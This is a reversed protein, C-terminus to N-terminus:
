KWKESSVFQWVLFCIACLRLPFSVLQPAVSLITKFAAVPHSDCLTTVACWLLAKLLVLLVLLDEPSSIWSSVRWGGVCVGWESVWEGEAPRCRCGLALRPKHTKGDVCVLVLWSGGGAEQKNPWCRQWHSIKKKRKVNYSTYLCKIERYNVQNIQKGASQFIAGVFNKTQSCVGKKMCRGKWTARFYFPIKAGRM